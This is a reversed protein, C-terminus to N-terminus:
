RATGTRKKGPSSVIEVGLSTLAGKLASLDRVRFQPKLIEGVKKGTRRDLVTIAPIFPIDGGFGEKLSADALDIKWRTHWFVKRELKNEHLKVRITAVSAWILTAGAFLISGYVQGNQYIWTLIGAIPGFGVLAGLIALATPDPKLVLPESGPGEM